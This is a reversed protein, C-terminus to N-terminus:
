GLDKGYLLSLGALSGVALVFSTVFLWRTARELRGGAFVAAAFLLAVSMMLYGLGELSIFIGHPNYQV